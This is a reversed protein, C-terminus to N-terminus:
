ASSGEPHQSARLLQAHTLATCVTARGCRPYGIEMAGTVRAHGEEYDTNDAWQPLSASVAHRENPPIARGLAPGPRQRTTVSVATSSM